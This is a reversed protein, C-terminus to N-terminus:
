DGWYAMPNQWDPFETDIWEKAETEAKESDKYYQDSYREDYTRPKTAFIVRDGDSVQYIIRDAVYGEMGEYVQGYSYRRDLSFHASRDYFAAKYFIGARKYGNPDILESWMSHDTPEIKWGEPLNVDIFIDDVEGFEFGLSELYQQPSVDYKKGWRWELGEVPLQSSAVFTQQGIAEQLEVGHPMTAAILDLPDLKVKNDDNKM